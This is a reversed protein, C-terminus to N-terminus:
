LLGVLEMVCLFQIIGSDNQHINSDTKVSPYQCYDEPFGM